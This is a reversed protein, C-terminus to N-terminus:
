GKGAPHQWKAANDTYKAFTQSTTAMHLIKVIRYNDYFVEVYLRSKYVIFTKETM